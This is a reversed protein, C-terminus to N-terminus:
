LGVSKSAKLLVLFHVMKRPGALQRSFVAEVLVHLSHLFLLAEFSEVDYRGSKNHRKLDVFEITLRTDM